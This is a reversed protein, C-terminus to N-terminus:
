RFGELGSKRTKCSGSVEGDNGSGVGVAPRAAGLFGGLVTCIIAIFIM